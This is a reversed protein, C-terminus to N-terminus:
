EMDRIVKLLNEYTDVHHYRVKSGPVNYIKEACHIKAKEIPKLQMSDMSGKTEAIFFIHKIGQSDDFAIAWDPSYNGVPTPIKFGKPLKAYVAVENANDLSEAFRREVSYEAIGDTFVYDMIHKTGEFARTPDCNAKSETFISSDYTEDVRNYVIHDVIMTAKEDRILKCVKTIFEEPNQRFMDFKKEEIGKLIEVSTRRTITSGTAIEGVLDYKVSTGSSKLEKTEQRTKIFSRGDRVSREDQDVSQEGGTMIYSLRSVFLNDDISKISKRILEQSDYEVRYTYKHNIENWLAQFERKNFNENLRNERIRTKKGDEIMTGLSGGDLITRVLEVVADNYESLGSPPDFFVTGSEVAKRCEETPRDSDDIYGMRILQHYIQNAVQGTIAKDEGEVTVKMRSLLEKDLKTPRERLNESMEKQLDRVFTDYGESAIVTLKNIEHILDGCEELDMREGKSDVCLRLGRGVEQRKRIASDSHKLACIQFVNPNDWGESLASHSFIFRTPEEFSLLREKDKLILDYADVDDSYESKGKVTSNVSRKTKKDISFYGQHTSSVPISDVYEMYNPDFFCRREALINSYEEEFIRGYPGLVQNDSDDYQRYNSVEDIFFLSLCKIGKRFLKEEKDLHSIITERIQIRRLNEESTDGIVDGPSLREGNSFEVYSQIANIDSIFVDKYAGLENSEIYLSDGYSLIRTERKIGNSHSIEMEIRVRPPDKPSLIIDDVYIYCSTGKLNKTEIGKVEIKKVLKQNYADLADLSYILNHSVKHTASFNLSFLANFHKKLAEQTAKGNLKQPEDLIIIPNNAAIVDIPRRSQFEDRESYIIRSDKSKGDEKLSTAFAQSNIIMVNIGSDRSFDDLKQLNSSDYVFFRAKKGYHEMFHDQTIEFSKKVGERIAISPVVVIFKSWGYHKNLEFMTKIYVYTKGTGTEMEIDLSCRGLSSDISKSPNLEGNEQISRINELLRDSPITIPHNSYASIESVFQGDEFILETNPTKGKDFRYRNRDDFSEGDFTEIIKGVADTQYPQIKFTFKM